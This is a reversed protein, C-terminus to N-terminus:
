KFLDSIGFSAPIINGDEDVEYMARGLTELDGCYDFLYADQNKFLEQLYEFTFDNLEFILENENCSSIYMKYFKDVFYCDDGKNTYENEGYYFNENDTNILASTDRMPINKVLEKDIEEFKLIKCAVPNYNVLEILRVYHKTELRKLDDENFKSILDNIDVMSNAAIGKLERLIIENM